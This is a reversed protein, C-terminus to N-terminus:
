PQCNNSNQPEGGEFKAPNLIESAPVARIQEGNTSCHERVDHPIGIRNRPPILL